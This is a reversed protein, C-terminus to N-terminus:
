KMKNTMDIYFEINHMRTKILFVRGYSQDLQYAVFCSMCRAVHLRELVFLHVYSGSLHRDFSKTGGFAGLGAMNEKDTPDADPVNKTM